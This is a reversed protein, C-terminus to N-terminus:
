HMIKVMLIKLQIIRYDKKKKQFCRFL